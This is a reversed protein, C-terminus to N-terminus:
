GKEALASLKKQIMQLDHWTGKKLEPNKLLLSPHFIPMLLIGNVMHFKGRLTLLPASTKLIAQGALDGLTCILRPKILEIQRWLLPLCASAQESTAQREGPTCKIINTLFVDNLSLNIAGLMKILLERADGSIAQHRDTEDHTRPGNVICLPPATERGEGFFVPGGAAAPPCQHCGALERKLEEVTVTPPSSQPVVVTQQKRRKPKAQSPFTIPPDPTLFGKIGESLPYDLGCHRHFNLLRRTDRLLKELGPEDKM